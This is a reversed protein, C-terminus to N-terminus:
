ALALKDLVELLKDPVELLKVPDELWWCLKDLDELWWFNTQIKLGGSAQRL